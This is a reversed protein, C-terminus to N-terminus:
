RPRPRPIATPIPTEYPGPLKKENLCLQYQVQVSDPNNVRVYYFDTNPLYGQWSKAYAPENRNVTGRGIPQGLEPFYMIQEQTFVDFGITDFVTKLYLEFGAERSYPIKHWIQSNADLVQLACSASMLGDAPSAGTPEIALSKIENSCLIYMVQIGITNTLRVYYYDLVFDSQVLQGRWSRQYIPDNPDPVSRGLAQGIAPFYKVQDPAFVDFYVGDVATLDIKLETNKHYPIKYWITGSTAMSEVQCTVALGNSPSAGTPDAALISSAGVWLLLGAVVLAIARSIRSTNM